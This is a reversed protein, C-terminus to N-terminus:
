ANYGNWLRMIKLCAIATGYIRCTIRILTVKIKEFYTVNLIYYQAIMLNKDVSNQQSKIKEAFM